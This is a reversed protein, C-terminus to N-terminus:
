PLSRERLGCTDVVARPRGTPPALAQWVDLNVEHMATHRTDAPIDHEDAALATAAAAALTAHLPSPSSTDHAATASM